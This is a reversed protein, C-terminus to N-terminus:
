LWAGLLIGAGLGAIITGAVATATDHEGLDVAWAALGALFIVTLFALTM